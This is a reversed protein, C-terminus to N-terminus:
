FMETKLKLSIIKKLQSEQRRNYGMVQKCLFGIKGEGTMLNSWLNALHHCVSQWLLKFFNLGKVNLKREPSKTM